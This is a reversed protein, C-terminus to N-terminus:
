WIKKNQEQRRRKQRRIRRITKGFKRRVRKKKQKKKDGGRPIVHSTKEQSAAQEYAKARRRRERRARTRRNRAAAVDPISASVESLQYLSKVSFQCSGKSLGLWVCGLHRSSLSTCVVSCCLAASASSVLFINCDSYVLLFGSCVVSQHLEGNWIM